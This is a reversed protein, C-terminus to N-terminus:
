DPLQPEGGTPRLGRRLPLRGGWTTAQEWLGGTAGEAPPRKTDDAGVQQAVVNRLNGVTTAKGTSRTPRVAAPSTSSREGVRPTALRVSKELPVEGWRM